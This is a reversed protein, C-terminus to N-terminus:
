KNEEVDIAKQFKMSNLSETYLELPQWEYGTVYIVDKALKDLRKLRERSYSFPYVKSDVILLIYNTKRCSFVLVTKM